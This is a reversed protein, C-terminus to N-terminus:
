QGGDAIPENNFLLVHRDTLPRDSTAIIAELYFNAREFKDWFALYSQSLEFNDIALEKCIAERMINVAAFLWCRGSNFQNTAAQTTLNVTYHM